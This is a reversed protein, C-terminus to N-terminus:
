ISQTITKLLKIKENYQDSLVNWISDQDTVRYKADENAYRDYDALYQDKYYNDLKKRNAEISKFEKHLEQLKKLDEECQILLKEVKDIKM